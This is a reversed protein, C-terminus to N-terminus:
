KASHRRSSCRTRCRKEAQLSPERRSCGQRLRYFRTTGGPDFQTLSETRLEKMRRCGGVTAKQPAKNKTVRLFPSLQILGYVRPSALQGPHSSAISVPLGM